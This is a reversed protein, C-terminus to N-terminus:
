LWDERRIVRRRETLSVWLVLFITAILLRLAGFSLAHMERVGYKIVTFGSGWVVIVFLLLLDTRTLRTRHPVIDRGAM